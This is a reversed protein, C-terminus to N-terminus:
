KEEEMCSDREVGDGVRKGRKVKEKLEQEDMVAQQLTRLQPFSTSGEARSDCDKASITNHHRMEKELSQSGLFLCLRVIHQHDLMLGIGSYSM